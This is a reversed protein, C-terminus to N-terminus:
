VALAEYEQSERSEKEHCDEKKNLERRKNHNTVIKETFCPCFTPLFTAYSLGHKNNM